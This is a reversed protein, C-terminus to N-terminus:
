PVSDGMKFRSVHNPLRLDDGTKQPRPISRVMRGRRSGDTPGAPRSAVPTLGGGATPHARSPHAAPGATAVGRRDSPRRGEPGPEVGPQVAATRDVATM